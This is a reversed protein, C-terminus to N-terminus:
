FERARKPMVRLRCVRAEHLGSVFLSTVPVVTGTENGPGGPVQVVTHVYRVGSKVLMHKIFLHIPPVKDIECFSPFSIPRRKSPHATYGVTRYRSDTHRSSPDTNSFRSRGGCYIPSPWPFWTGVWLAKQGM